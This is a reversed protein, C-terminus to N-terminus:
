AGDSRDNEMLLESLLGAAIGTMEQCNSVGSSELNEIVKECNTSGFADLFRKRFAVTLETAKQLDRGPETRGYLYGIAVIGGTLAGCVDEHTGGLGGRFGAAVKHVVTDPEGGHLEVITRSISEACHFGGSSFYSFAREEAEKRIDQSDM